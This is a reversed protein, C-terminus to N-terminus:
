EGHGFIVNVGHLCKVLTTNPQERVRVCGLMCLLALTEFAGADVATERRACGAISFRSGLVM